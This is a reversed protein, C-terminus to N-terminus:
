VDRLALFNLLVYNYIYM